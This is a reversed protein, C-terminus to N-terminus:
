SGSPAEARLFCANTTLSLTRRQERCEARRPLVRGWCVQHTEKLGAASSAYEKFTTIQRSVTSNLSSLLQLNDALRLFMRISPACTRGPAFPSTPPLICITMTGELMSRAVTMPRAAFRTSTLPSLAKRRDVVRWYGASGSHTTTLYRFSKMRAFSSIPGLFGWSSSRVASERPASIAEDTGDAGFVHVTISREFASM